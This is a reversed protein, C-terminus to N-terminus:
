HPSPTPTPNPNPNTSTAPEAGFDHHMEWGTCAVAPPLAVGAKAVVAGVAVAAGAAAAGAAAAGAAAGAAAAETAAAAGAAAAETAAADAGGEETERAFAAVSQRLSGQRPIVIEDVEAFLVARYRGLLEAQKESVVRGLWAPDFLANPRAEV